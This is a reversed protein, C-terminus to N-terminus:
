ANLYWGDRQESARRSIYIHSFLCPNHVRCLAAPCLSSAPMMVYTVCHHGPCNGHATVSKKSCNMNRERHTHKHTNKTMGIIADNGSAESERAETRRAGTAPRKRGTRGSHPWSLAERDQKQRRYIYIYLYMYM